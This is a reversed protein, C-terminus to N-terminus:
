HQDLIHSGCRVVPGSNHIEACLVPRVFAHGVDSVVLEFFRVSAQRNVVHLVGDVILVLFRVHCGKLRHSNGTRSRTGYPLLPLLAEAHEDSVHMGPCECFGRPVSVERVCAQVGPRLPRWLRDRKRLVLALLPDHRSKTERGTPIPLNPFM